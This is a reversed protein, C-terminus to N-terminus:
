HIATLMLNVELEIRGCIKLVYDATYLPTPLLAVNFLMVKAFHFVQIM